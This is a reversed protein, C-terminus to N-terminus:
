CHRIVTNRVSSDKAISALDEYNGKLYNILHSQIWHKLGKKRSPEYYANRANIKTIQVNPNVIRANKAVREAHESAWLLGWFRGRANQELIILRPQPTNNTNRNVSNM